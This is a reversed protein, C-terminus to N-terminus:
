GSRVSSLGFLKSSVFFNVGEKTGMLLSNLVASRGASCQQLKQFVGAQWSCCM